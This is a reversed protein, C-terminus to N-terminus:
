GLCISYNWHTRRATDLQAILSDLTSSSQGVLPDAMGIHIPFLLWYRAPHVM